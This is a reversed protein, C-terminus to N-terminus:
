NIRIYSMKGKDGDEYNVLCLKWEGYYDTIIKRYLKNSVKKMIETGIDCPEEWIM